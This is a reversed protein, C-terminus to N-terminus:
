LSGSREGRPAGTEGLGAGKERSPKGLRRMGMPHQPDRKQPTAWPRGQRRAAGRAEWPRPLSKRLLEGHGAGGSAGYYPLSEERIL